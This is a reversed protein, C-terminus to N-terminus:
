KAPFGRGTAATRRTSRAALLRVAAAAVLLATCAVVVAAIAAARRPHKFRERHREQRGPPEDFCAGCTADFASAQDHYLKFLPRHAKSVLALAIQENNPAGMAVMREFEQEVLATVRRVACSRGGFFWARVISHNEWEGKKTPDFLHYDPTVQLAFSDGLDRPICRPCRLKAADVYRGAGADIWFFAESGFQNAQAAGRLFHFKAFLIVIYEALICELRAPDAMRSRYDPQSHLRRIEALRSAGPVREFELPVVALGHTTVGAEARAARVFEANHPEVYVVMAVPIALTAQLWRLYHRFARGDGRDERRIDYLATVFTVRSAVSGNMM